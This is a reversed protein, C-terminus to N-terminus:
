PRRNGDLDARLKALDEGQAKLLAPLDKLTAFTRQLEKMTNIIGEFEKVQESTIRNLKM